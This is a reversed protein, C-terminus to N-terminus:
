ECSERREADRLGDEVVTNVKMHLRGLATSRTRYVLWALRALSSLVVM